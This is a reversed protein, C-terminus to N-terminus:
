GVPVDLLLEVAVTLVTKLLRIVGQTLRDKLAEQQQVRSQLANRRLGYEL